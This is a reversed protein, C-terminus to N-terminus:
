PHPAALTCAGADCYVEQYPCSHLFIECGQEDFRQCVSQVALLSSQEHAVNLVVGCETCDGATHPPHICDSDAQCSTDAVQQALAQLEQCSAGATGGGGSGSGIAGAMGGGGSGSASAGATGGGGSAGINRHSVNSRAVSGCGALLALTGASFLCVHRM